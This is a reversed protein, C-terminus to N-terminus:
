KILVEIKSILTIKSFPHSLEKTIHNSFQQLLQLMMIVIINILTTGKQYM